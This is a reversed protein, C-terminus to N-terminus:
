KRVIKRGHHAEVFVQLVTTRSILGQLLGNGDVVPIRHINHKLFLKYAEAFPDTKRVTVIKKFPTLKEMCRAITAELGETAALRLVAGEGIVSMVHDVQDVIPAGSIGKKLFLEAVEFLTMEDTVRIVKEVMIDSVLITPASGKSM